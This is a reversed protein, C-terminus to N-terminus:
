WTIEEQIEEPLLQFVRRRVEGFEEAGIEALVGDFIEQLTGSGLQSVITEAIEPVLQLLSQERVEDTIYKPFIFPELFAPLPAGTDPTTQQFSPSTEQAERPRKMNEGSM